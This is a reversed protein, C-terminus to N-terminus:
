LDQVDRLWKPITKKLFQFLIRESQQPSFYMEFVMKHGSMFSAEFNMLFVPKIKHQMALAQSPSTEWPM